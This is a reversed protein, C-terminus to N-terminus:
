RIRTVQESSIPRGDLFSHIFYTGSPLGKTDLLIRTPQHLAPTGSFLTQIRRGVLDYLVIEVSGPTGSTFELVTEASFPNPYPAYIVLDEAYLEVTIPESVRYAGSATVQRIQFSYQGPDLNDITHVFSGPVQANGSVEALIELPEIREIVFTIGVSSQTTSWVIQVSREGPIARLESFVVFDYGLCDKRLPLQCIPNANLAAYSATDPLCLGANDSLNCENLTAGLAAVELPLIGTLENNSLDLAVLQSLGAYEQPINGQLTNKSLNLVQLNHLSSLSRPLDGALHNDPLVISTIEENHCSIGHWDCPDSSALWGESQVWSAGSTEYYVSELSQCDTGRCVKCTSQQSLSCVQHLDAYPPADPICIHNGELHCNTIGAAYRATKLSLAGELGNNALSLWVLQDLQILAEPLTGSFMNNSVDLFKLASLDGLWTPLTGSFLNRSLDLHELKVLHRFSDPVAGGLSNGRLDLHQLETLQGFKEPVSGELKNDGLSLERLNTLNGLEVPITGTFANNGLLLVELHELDGLSAPIQNILKKQRVGPGTNDIRISRLESLFALDGPLTGTLDNGSLDIHIIDRPWASSQCTIGYWDCPQNTRLWGRVNRWNFGDTDYFLKELVQCDELTIQDILPCGLFQAHTATAHSVALVLILPAVRTMRM